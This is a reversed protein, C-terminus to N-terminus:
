TNETRGPAAPRTRMPAVEMPVNQRDGRRSLRRRAPYRLAGRKKLGPCAPPSATPRLGGICIRFLHPTPPNTSPRCGVAPPAPQGFALSSEPNGIPFLKRSSPPDPLGACRAAPYASRTQPLMRNDDVVHTHDGDPNTRSFLLASSYTSWRPPSPMTVPPAYIQRVALSV